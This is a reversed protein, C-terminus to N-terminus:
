RIEASSMLFAASHCNATAHWLLIVSPIVQDSGGLFPVNPYEVDANAIAPVALIAAGVLGAVDRRSVGEANMQM